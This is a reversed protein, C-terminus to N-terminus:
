AVRFEGSIGLITTSSLVSVPVRGSGDLYNFQVQKTNPVIYAGVAKTVSTLGSVQGILVPNNGDVSNVPTYPMGSLSVILNGTGAVSVASLAFYARFKVTRAVKEYSGTQSSYTVTPATGDSSLTPAFTTSSATYSPGFKSSGGGAGWGGWLLADNDNLNADVVMALRTTDNFTQTPFATGTWMAQARRINPYGSQITVNDSLSQDFYANDLYFTPNQGGSTSFRYAFTSGNLATNRMSVGLAFGKAWGNCQFVSFGSASNACACNEIHFNFINANFPLTNNQNLQINPVNASTYYLGEWHVQDLKVNFFGTFRAVAGRVAMWEANLQLVSGESWSGEFRYFSDGWMRISNAFDYWNDGYLNIFVNGTSSQSNLRVPQTCKAFEINMVLNSYLTTDTSNLEGCSLGEYCSQILLNEFRSTKDSFSSGNGLKLGRCNTGSDYLSFNSHQIVLDSVRGINYSWVTPKTKDFASITTSRGAAGRLSMNNVVVNARYYGPPLFTPGTSLANAIAQTDDHIMNASTIASSLAPSVTISTTGGGATITGRYIGGVAASPANSPLYQAGAMAGSYAVRALGIPDFANSYGGIDNFSTTTSLGILGVGNRYIAYEVAGTDASWALANYNTASLAANGTTTSVVTGAATCGGSGDLAVIQYGYTTSGATGTPTVTLGSPVGITPAAGGMYIAIAQGNAFDGTSSLTLAGSGSGGSASVTTNTGVAGCARANVEGAALMIWCGTAGAFTSAVINIGNASGQSTTANYVWAANGGTGNAYYSLMFCQQYKTVDVNALEAFSRIQRAVRNKFFNAINDNDWGLLAAGKTPDAQNALAALAPAQANIAAQSDAVLKALSRVPGGATTVTTSADGHVIQHALATDTVFQAIQDQPTTM